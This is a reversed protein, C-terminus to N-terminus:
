SEQALFEKTRAWHLLTTPGLPALAMLSRESVQM